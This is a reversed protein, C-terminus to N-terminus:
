ISVRRSKMTNCHICRQQQAWFPRDYRDKILQGKNWQTWQHWGWACARSTVLLPLDQLARLTNEQENM